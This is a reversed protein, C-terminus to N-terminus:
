QKRILTLSGNTALRPLLTARLKRMRQPTTRLLHKLNRSDTISRLLTTLRFNQQPLFSKGTLRRVKETKVVKPPSRLSLRVNM